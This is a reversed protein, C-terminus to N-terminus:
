AAPAHAHLVHRPLVEWAARQRPRGPVAQQPQLCAAAVLAMEHLVGEVIPHRGDKWQCTRISQFLLMCTEIAMTVVGLTGFISAM